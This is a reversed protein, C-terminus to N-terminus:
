LSGADRAEDNRGVEKFYMVGDRIEDGCRKNM